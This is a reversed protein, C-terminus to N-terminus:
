SSHRGDTWSGLGHAIPSHMCPSILRLPRRLMLNRSPSSTIFEIVRRRLAPPHPFSAHRGLAFHAQDTPVLNTENQKLAQLGRSLLAASPWIIGPRIPAFLHLFTPHHKSLLCLLLTASCCLRDLSVRKKESCLEERARRLL